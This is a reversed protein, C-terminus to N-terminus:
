KSHVCTAPVDGYKLDMAGIQRKYFLHRASPGCGNSYRLMAIENVHDVFSRAAADRAEAEGLISLKFRNRVRKGIEARCVGSWRRQRKARVTLEKENSFLEGIADVREVDLEIASQRWDDDIGARIRAYEGNCKRRIARGKYHFGAGCPFRVSRGDRGVRHSRIAFES